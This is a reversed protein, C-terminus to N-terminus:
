LVLLAASALVAPWLVVPEPVPMELRTALEGLLMMNFRVALEEFALGQSKGSGTLLHLGWLFQRERFVPIQSSLFVLFSSYCSRRSM